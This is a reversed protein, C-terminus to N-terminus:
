CDVGLPAGQPNPWVASIVQASRPLVWLARVLRRCGRRRHPGHRQPDRRRPGAIEIPVLDLSYPPLSPVRARARAGAARILCRVESTKHAGVNDLVVINGLKLKRLLVRKLFAEFVEGDTAGEVIMTARVGTADLAGTM